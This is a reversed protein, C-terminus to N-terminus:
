GNINAGLNNMLNIFDPFSTKIPSSDDIFITEDTVTGLILFSMAIRHDLATEILTGGKPPTGTGHITLTDKGEELNVGCSKLGKAMMALRDSEKVRLEALGEMHTTGVACSAAVAFIPFEDIMSPVRSKPVNIAKLKNSGKIILDAVKEGSEEKQNVLTIDAGMEILTEYLGFRLPNIGINPLIIESDKNILAAVTPFAASSPDSPVNINCGTLQKGGKITITKSGDDNLKSTIDAGFSKLMNETYDRTPHPEIVTTIKPSNIGALIIASKVQASAIPLKYKIPTIQQAGEMSLPLKGQEKEYIFKAGMKELAITVREMPRKTLSADGSFRTKIPQSACIGMLLRVSTGSNGMELTNEPQKLNGIGVGEIEWIGNEKKEIKAGMEKMAQATNMVDEGELLGTIITKGCSLSGFMVSRHSISKDGPIIATGKMPSSKTSSPYKSFPFPSTEM